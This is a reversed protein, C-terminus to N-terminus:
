SLAEAILRKCPAYVVCTVTFAVGGVALAAAAHAWFNPEGLSIGRRGYVTKERVFNSWNPNREVERSLEDFLEQWGQHDAAKMKEIMEPMKVVVERFMKLTEEFPIEKTSWQGDVLTPVLLTRGINSEM